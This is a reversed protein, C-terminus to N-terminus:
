DSGVSSCCRSNYGCENMSIVCSLRLKLLITLKFEVSFIQFPLSCVQQHQQEIRANGCM